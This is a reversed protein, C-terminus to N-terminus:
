PRERGTAPDGGGHVGARCTEQDTGRTQDAASVLAGREMAPLRRAIRQLQRADRDLRTALRRNPGRTVRLEQAHGHLAQAVSVLDMRAQQLTDPDM